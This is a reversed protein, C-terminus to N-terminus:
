FNSKNSPTKMTHVNNLNINGRQQSTSHTIGPCNWDSIHWCRCKSVDPQDQLWSVVSITCETSLSSWTCVSARPLCRTVLVWWADHSVCKQSAFVTLAGGNPPPPRLRADTNYFLRAWFNAGRASKMFWSKPRFFNRFFLKKLDELQQNVSFFM